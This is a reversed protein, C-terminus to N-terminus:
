DNNQYYERDVNPNGLDCVYFICTKTVIWHLKIICKQARKIFIFVNEKIFVGLSLINTYTYVNKKKKKNTTRKINENNEKTERYM